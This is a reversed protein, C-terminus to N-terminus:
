PEDVFEAVMEDVLADINKARDTTNGENEEESLKARKPSVDDAIDAQVPLGHKGNEKADEPKKASTQVDMSVEVVDDADNNKAKDTTNGENVEGSLKAGKPSVKKKAATEVDMLVEVVDDDDRNNKKVQLTEEEDSDLVSVVSPEVIQSEDEETLQIVGDDVNHSNNPESKAERRAATEVPSSTSVLEVWAVPEDDAAAEEAFDSEDSGETVALSENIEGDSEDLVGEASKKPSPKKPSIKEVESRPKVFESSDNLLSGNSKKKNPSLQAPVLSALPHKGKNALADKLAAQDVPFYLTEKWPHLVLEMTRALEAATSRVEASVDSTQLANFIHGAYQLPPPCHHHPNVILAAFARLLAVRAKGDGYLGTLQHHTVLSFCLPLIKEQLLKHTVPKIFCGASQLIGTLCDLAAKCLAENGLDVLQESNEVAASGRSHTQNLTTAANQEKHLKKKAKASLRQKGGADMKLTVESVHPTIDRFIHELIPENVTEICSGYRMKECWLHISEYIKTRLRTFSKKIGEDDSRDVQAAKLCKPFMECITDGFMLLNSGLALVLGDLVELLAYHIAPLFTGFAVNEIITNRGMASCSVSLGRLILNLAKFPIIPKPVPYAGVIAQDLYAILNVARVSLLQAALVPNDTPPIPPLKLCELNDEEDFTEPTHVFIKNLSDHITDVLRRYYEEWTRKHLNGHQGGGRIQQLLLMCRATRNVIRQDTADVLSYLFPEIRSKISGCVGSYHQMTLELFSLAAPLVSTDLSPAIPELLKPVNSVMLKHLENSSLSRQVLQGLVGYALPMSQVQGRNSCIKACVNIYHQAKEEVIELPCQALLHCLIRLGRDRTNASVLLNSIKSFITELDNEPDSWFTQHEDLSSLFLTLLNDSNDVVNNFIQGIGEM